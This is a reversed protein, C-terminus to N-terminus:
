IVDFSFNQKMTEIFNWLSLSNSKQHYIWGWSTDAHCCTCQPWCKLFTSFYLYKLFICHLAFNSFNSLLSPVLSRQSLVLVQCRACSVSTVARVTYWCLPYNNKKEEQHHHGIVRPLIKILTQTTMTTSFEWRQASTYEPPRRKLFPWGDELCNM